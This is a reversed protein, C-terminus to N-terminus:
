SSFDNNLANREVKGRQVEAKAKRITEEKELQRQEATKRPLETHTTLVTNPKKNSYVVGSNRTVNGQSKNSM